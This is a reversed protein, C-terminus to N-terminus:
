THKHRGLKRLEKEIQGVEEEHKHELIKRAVFASRKGHPFAKRFYTAVSKPIKIIIREIPENHSKRPM